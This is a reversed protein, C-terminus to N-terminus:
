KLSVSAPPQTRDRGSRAHQREATAHRAFRLPLARSRGGDMAVSAAAGVAIMRVLLGARSGSHVPDWRVAEHVALLPKGGPGLQRVSGAVPAGAPDAPEPPPSAGWGAGFILLGIVSIAVGWIM